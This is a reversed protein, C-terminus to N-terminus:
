EEGRRRWYYLEDPDLLICVLIGALMFVTPVFIAILVSVMLKWALSMEYLERLM